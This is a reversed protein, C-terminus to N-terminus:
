PEAEVVVCDGPRSEIFNLIDHFPNDGAVQRVCVHDGIIILADRARSLAVNLRRRERLFGISGDANSRTVSYVAVDAERGQFGDVTSCNVGINTWSSEDDALLRSLHTLQAKYATLVVVELRTKSARAFFDLRRLTARVCRAEYRNRFSRGTWQEHRDKAGATTQWCVPPGSIAGVWSPVIRDESTLEGDYFVESILDGIAPAMRHQHQLRTVSETPLGERLRDFLTERLQESTLRHDALMDPRELADDVFPPLQRHDGVLIWRSARNMPVLLETPTGKSAEDVICLDFDVQDSGRVSAYGVCTAAVVQARTLAAARFESSRGLRAHWDALLQILRQCERTTQRDDPLHRVARRRLEDPQTDLLERAEKGEGLEVLRGALESADDRAGTLSNVTERLSADLLEVAGQETTRPQERRLRRAETLRAELDRRETAVRRTLELAAALEDMRMALEAARVDVGHSSAWSRLWAQGQRIGEVRWKEVQADLLLPAVSDAVREDERRAVRVMRLNQGESQLRELVNDLAAHTQSALLIRTDPRLRLEQLILEAIFTTKGTGPPGQVVLFDDTGLARAVAERKPDDLYDRFWRDVEMHRPSRAREPRLLLEILDPRLSRGYELADLAAEQRRLAAKAASTDLRLEGSRPVLEPHGEVLSVVLKRETVHLVEGFIPVDDPNVVVVRPEDVFQEGADERLAFELEGTARRKFSEYALPVERERLVARGASLTRRWVRLPFERAVAKEDRIREQRRRHAADELGAVVSASATSDRPRGIRFEIENLLLGRDRDRELLSSPLQWGNFVVLRDRDVDDVKCHLKLETGILFYHGQSSTGDAFDGEFPLLACEEHLNDLLTAQLLSAQPLDLEAILVERAKDTLVLSVLSRRRAKSSGREAHCREIRGLLIGADGHRHVPNRLLCSQLVAAICEPVDLEAVATDLVAYPDVDPAFPDADTLALVAMAGYAHVDRQASYREDEHDRPSFPPTSHFRLTQGFSVDRMLKAIGFDALMAIGDDTLLVNGPKVDRHAVGSEHAFALGHLIGEGGRDWWDDWGKTPSHVLVEALTRPLWPLVFYREGSEADRGAGLLPVINEHRLRQLTRYERDFTLAVLREDGAIPLLKIAVPEEFEGRLDTARFVSAMGGGTSQAPL